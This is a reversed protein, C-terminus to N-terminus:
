LKAIITFAVSRASSAPNYVVTIWSNTTASYNSYAYSPSLPNQIWWGGSVPKWNPDSFTFTFTSTPNVRFYFVFRRFGGGLDQKIKAKKANLVVKKISMKKKM